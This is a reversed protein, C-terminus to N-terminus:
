EEDLWARTEALAAEFSLASDPDHAQPAAPEATGMMRQILKQIRQEDSPARPLGAEDRFARGVRALRLAREPDSESWALVVCADLADALRLRDKIERLMLFAERVRARAEDRAGQEAAMIGLRLLSEAIGQRDGLERQIELSQGYFGRSAQFDGRQFAVDGLGEFSISMGRRDGLSRRIELSKAFQARAEELQGLEGALRGLNNLCIAIGRLNGLEEQLALSETYRTHALAYDGEGHAVIGLNVLSMAIGAPDGLARRLALAEEHFARATVYDGVEYSLRGAGLLAKARLSRDAHAGSMALAARLRDRGESLFGRVWWFRWLGGVLVLALGADESHVAWLLAARLNDHEEELRDLWLMQEPGELETEARQALSAHYSAHRGRVVPDEGREVLREWGYQRISELVHYRAGGGAGEEPLILSQDALNSLLELVRSEEIGGGSCVVEAGALSAGGAFVSLRNFLTREESSLLEYSWDLTARLTQHRASAARSGGALLALRDQLRSLIDGVPLVNVRAAALEVALPIGDLERCIESVIAANRETLTFRHQVARARDVFLRVSEYQVAHEPTAPGTRAPISLSPIRWRVEAAAGLVARSTCLLRTGPSGALVAEALATCAAAVHECNDLLLLVSRRRLSGVVTELVPRGPEERIGLANATARPILAPDSLGALGVFWVGDPFEPLLDAAVRLALRTKGCGGAGTLTVLRHLAILRKLEAAERARGVFSTAAAPLNNPGVPGSSRSGPPAAGTVSVLLERLADRLAGASPFRRARDKELSRAIVLDLDYPLEPRISSPPDPDRTAIEHLLAVLSPARFPQRGTVMEYLVCGLSFVDTRPDLREGRTQEPSMYAATGLIVGTGTLGASVTADTAHEGAPLFRKALGLDVVKPAGSPTVLINSPKIDRHILHAAHAAEIAEAVRAGIELSQLLPLPGRATLAALSEGPVLEMVILPVGDIEEVSHVAVIGPHHLASAARAERLLRETAVRDQMADPPLLKLAVQRGLRLDLARYVEGMGGAGIKELIRYHSVTSGLM